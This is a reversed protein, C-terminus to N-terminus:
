SKQRPPDQECSAINCVSIDTAPSGTVLRWYSCMAHPIPRPSPPFPLEPLLFTPLPPLSLPPRNHIM